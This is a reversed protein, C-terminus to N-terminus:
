NIKYIKCFTTNEKRMPKFSCYLDNDLIFEKKVFILNFLECKNSTYYLFSINLLM